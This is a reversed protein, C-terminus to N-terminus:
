GSKYRAKNIGSRPRFMGLCEQLDFQLRYTPDRRITIIGQGDNNVGGDVAKDNILGTTYFDGFDFPDFTDTLKKYKNEITEVGAEILSKNTDFPRYRYVGTKNINGPLNMNWEAIILSETSITSSNEFHSKLIENNFM